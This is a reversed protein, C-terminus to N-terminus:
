LTTTGRRTAIAHYRRNGHVEQLNISYTGFKIVEYVRMWERSGARNKHLMQQSESHVSSPFLRLRKLSLTILAHCPTLGVKNYTLGLQQNQQNTQLLQTRNKHYRGASVPLCDNVNLDYAYKNRKKSVDARAERKILANGVHTCQTQHILKSPLSLSFPLRGQEEPASMTYM